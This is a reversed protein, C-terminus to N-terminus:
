RGLLGEHHRIGRPGSLPPGSLLGGGLLHANKTKLLWNLREELDSRQVKVSGTGSDYSITGYLRHEIITKM